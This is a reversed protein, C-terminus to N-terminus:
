SAWGLGVLLNHALAFMWSVVCTALTTMNAAVLTEPVTLARIQRLFFVVVVSLFAAVVLVAEASFEIM